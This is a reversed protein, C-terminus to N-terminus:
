IYVTLKYWTGKEKRKFGLGIVFLNRVNVQRICKHACTMWDLHSPNTEPFYRRLQPFQLCNFILCWLVYTSMTVRFGTVLHNLFDWHYRKKLQLSSNLISVIMFEQYWKEVKFISVLKIKNKKTQKCCWAIDHLQKKLRNNFWCCICDLMLTLLFWSDDIEFHMTYLMYEESM